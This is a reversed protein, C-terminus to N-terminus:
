PGGDNSTPSEHVRENSHVESSHDHVMGRNTIRALLAPIVVLALAQLGGGPGNTWLIPAHHRGNM